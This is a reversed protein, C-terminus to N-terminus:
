VILTKSKYCVIVVFCTIDIKYPAYTRNLPRIALKALLPTLFLM